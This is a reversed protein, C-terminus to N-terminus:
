GKSYPLAYVKQMVEKATRYIEPSDVISLDVFVEERSLPKGFFVSVQASRRLITMLSINDSGKIYVPMITSDTHNALFIYGIKANSSDEKFKVGGEPFICVSNGACIIKIHHYLAHLLNNKGRYAPYAGMAKFMVGGYFLSRIGHNKFSYEHKPRSVFFLPAHRSFWPLAYQFFIPDMEGHHNCAFVVKADQLLNLNEM